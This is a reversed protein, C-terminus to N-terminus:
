IIKRRDESARYSFITCGRRFLNAAAQPDDRTLDQLVEVSITDDISVVYCEPNRQPNFRARLSMVDIMANFEATLDKARKCGLANMTAAHYYETVDQVYEFGECDWSALVYKVSM